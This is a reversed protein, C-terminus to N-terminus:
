YVEIKVVKSVCQTYPIRAQFTHEGPSLPWAERYPYKTVSYEKGDVIWVVESARPEVMCNLMLINQQGPMEPDIFLRSKNQPSIISIDYDHVVPAGDCLPSYDEPPLKLDQVEAWDKFISPLAIFRKSIVYKQPCYPSALLGNRKDVPLWREIQSFTTPETGPKLYVTTTFPSHESNLEGTLTNIRYPKYGDPSPFRLNSLGEKREPHLQAFIGQVVPAAASFGSLEKISEHDHRGIWVGVLYTDSWGITWADRHGRSTGTKLAVPYPYELFSGRPFSPLRAQPDSLIRQIQLAVSQDILRTESSDREGYLWHTRKQLGENALVLYAQCLQHLSCYLNGVALGLGYHDANGDDVTLELGALRKYTFDLGVDRLVQIAPINRSNALAFKYLVPGLFQNDYNRPIFPQEGDGFYLGIDTLLTAPTYGRWEMGYAYIFPKLASGTSRKVDVFDIQGAHADDFYYDSGCYALIEGTERKLVLIGINDAGKPRLKEMHNYAATTAVNQIDTDLTLRLTPNHPDLKVDSNRSEIHKNVALIPHLMNDQRLEKTPLPLNELEKLAFEKEEKDIWELEWARNIIRKARKGAARFGNERYLNMIGPANPVATLLAAEAWSLDALPKKFYRRAAYNIGSIRNGYPAITLYHRLVRDRGFILTLWIATFSERMKFFLSRHTGAGQMRAVQMAITSGGSFEQKTFYNGIFARGTAYLDVGFHNDFRHDEAAKLLVPIKPPLTDPLPWHGFNGSENELAGIFSHYRDVLLLSSNASKLSITFLSAIFALYVCFFPLAAILLLITKRTLPFRRFSIKKRFETLINGLKDSM